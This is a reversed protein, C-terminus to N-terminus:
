SLTNPNVWEVTAYPYASGSDDITLTVFDQSYWLTSPTTSFGLVYGGTDPGVYVPADITATSSSHKTCTTADTLVWIAFTGARSDGDLFTEKIAVPYSTPQYSGMDGNDTRMYCNLLFTDTEVDYRGAIHYTYSHGDIGILPQALWMVAPSSVGTQSYSAVRSQTTWEIEFVYLGESLGQPAVLTPFVGCNIADKLRYCYTAINMTISPTIVTSELNQVSFLTKEEKLALPKGNLSLTTLTADGRMINTANNEVWLNTNVLDTLCAAVTNYSANDDYSINAADHTHDALAVNKYGNTPDGISIGGASNLKVNM